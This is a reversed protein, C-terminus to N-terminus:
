MGWDRIRSIRTSSATIRERILRSPAEADLHDGSDSEVVGALETAASRFLM